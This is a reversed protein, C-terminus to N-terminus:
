YRTGVDAGLQALTEAPNEGRKIAMDMAKMRLNQAKRGKADGRNAMMSIFKWSVATHPDPEADPIPAATKRAHQAMVGDIAAAIKGRMPNPWLKLLAFTWERYTMGPPPPTEGFSYLETKAYRAGTAVGPCRTVMKAWMQPAIMQYLFLGALPEEGFPPCVRQLHVPVGAMDFLDYTRNYDYGNLQPFFWVDLSTWDYIPYALNVCGAVPTEMLWNEQERHSVVMRRRPSEQARLGLVQVQTERPSNPLLSYPGLEPMPAFKSPADKRPLETLATDPLPACWLHQEDPHWPHWYPQRRSAANRHQVPLCYWYLKVEPSVMMRKVYEITTPYIAEEDYFIAEVPLKGHARAAEIALHLCVTSDKGGSFMVAVRDFRRYLTDFRERAATLVDRETIKAKLTRM